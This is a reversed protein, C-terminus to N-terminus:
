IKLNNDKFNLTAPFSQCSLPLYLNNFTYKLKPQVTTYSVPLTHFYIAFTQIYPSALYLARM